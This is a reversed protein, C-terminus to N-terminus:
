GIDWAVRKWKRGGKIDCITQQSVGFQLSLDIGRVGVALARKIVTVQDDDLKAQPLQHGSAVRGKSVADAVNVLQTGRFLHLPRMCPPNDCRHLAQEWPLLPGNEVVFALRHTYVLRGCLSVVGYGRENKAGRWLWCPGLEVRLIPGSRNVREWIDQRGRAVEIASEDGLIDRGTGM